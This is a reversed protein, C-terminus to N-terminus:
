RMGTGAVEATGHCQDCGAPGSGRTAVWALGFPQDSGHASHCSLCFVGNSGASVARAESYSRAGRTVFRVRPTDGFGSGVGREWHGPSTTGRAAGQRITNRAGNESDYSPHLEHAGDRNPDTHLAGSLTHHCDVCVSSAERLADSDLTGYAVHEAEYRELGTAMPDVFVGITPTAEPQSPWRLLRARGNGHPDHCDVCTVRATAMSGTHCRACLAGSGVEGGLGYGLDHGNPNRRGPAEFHGGARRALGNVDPGVVDPIGPSDEHCGLCVALPDAQSRSDGASAAATGAGSRHCEACDQRRTDHHAPTLSVNAVRVAVRASSDPPSHFPHDGLRSSSGIAGLAASAWLVLAVATARLVGRYAVSM